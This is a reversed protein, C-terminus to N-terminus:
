SNLVAMTLGRGAQDRAGVAAGLATERGAPSLQPPVFQPLPVDRRSRGPKVAQSGPGKVIRSM